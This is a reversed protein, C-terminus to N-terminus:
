LHRRSTCMAGIDKSLGFKIYRCAEAVDRKVFWDPSIMECLIVLLLSQGFLSLWSSYILVSSFYKKYWYKSYFHHESHPVFHRVKSPRRQTTHRWLRQLVSPVKVDRPGTAGRATAFNEMTSVSPEDVNESSERLWLGNPSILLDSSVSYTWAYWVYILIRVKKDQVKRWYFSLSMQLHTNSTYIVFTYLRCNRFFCSILQLMMNLCWQCTM